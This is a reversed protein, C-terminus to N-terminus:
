TTPAAPDKGPEGVEYESVANLLDKANLAEAQDWAEKLDVRNVKHLHAIVFATLVDASMLPTLEAWNKGTTREVLRIEGITITDEDWTEGALTIRWRLSRDSAVSRVRCAMVIEALDGDYHGSAIDEVIQDADAV